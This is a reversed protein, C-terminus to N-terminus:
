YMAKLRAWSRSETPVTLANTIGIRAQLIPYGDSRGFARAFATLRVQQGTVSRPAGYVCDAMLPARQTVQLLDHFEISGVESHWFITLGGGTASLVVFPDQYNPDLHSPSYIIELESQAFDTWYFYSGLDFGADYADSIKLNGVLSGYNSCPGGVPDVAGVFELTQGGPEDILIGFHFDPAAIGDLQADVALALGPLITLLLLLSLINRTLPM